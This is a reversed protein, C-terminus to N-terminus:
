EILVKGKYTNNESRVEIIYIGKILDGRDIITKGSVKEERVKNGVIDYISLTHPESALDISTSSTFPNPYFVLEKPFAVSPVSIWNDIHNKMETEDVLGGQHDYIVSDGFPTVIYTQSFAGSGYEYYFQSWFSRTNQAGDQQSFNPVNLLGNATEWALCTSDTSGASGMEFALVIVNSNNQGYSQYMSEIIPASAICWGCTLFYFDLVLLKGNNLYDSMTHTNGDTDVFNDFGTPVFQAQVQFIFVFILSTLLSKKM